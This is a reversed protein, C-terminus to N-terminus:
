KAIILKKASLIRDNSMITLFYVGNTLLTSAAIDYRLSESLQMTYILQGTHSRIELTVQNEPLNEFVIAFNGNNPHPQITFSFKSLQEQEHQKSPAEECGDEFDLDIPNLLNLFSRAQYVVEGGSIPASLSPHM